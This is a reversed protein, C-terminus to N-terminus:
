AVDAEVRDPRSIDEVRCRLARAIDRAMRDSPWRRGLPPGLELVKLYSESIGSRDRFQRRTMGLAERRAKVEAGDFQRTKVPGIKDQRRGPRLMM